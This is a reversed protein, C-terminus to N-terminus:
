FERDSSPGVSDPVARWLPEPHDSILLHSSELAEKEASQGALQRCVLGAHVRLGRALVAPELHQGTLGSRHFSVVACSGIGEGIDPRLEQLLEPEIRSELGLGQELFELALEGFAEGVPLQTGQLPVDFAPPCEFPRCAFDEEGLHMMGSPQAGAVEGEAVVQAHGDVVHGEVVQDVVEHEGVGVPLGAGEAEGLCEFAEARPQLVRQPLQAADGLDVAGVAHGRGDRRAGIARLYERVAVPCEQPVVTQGALRDPGALGILIAVALLAVALELPCQLLRQQQTAAAVERATGGVLREQTPQEPLEVTAPLLPQGLLQGPQTRQRRTPQLRALPQPHTHVFAAGDVNRVVRVRHGAPQDALLDLHTDKGLMQLHPVALTLHLRQWAQAALALVFDLVPVHDVPQDALGPRERVVAVLGVQERRAPEAQGIVHEDFLL